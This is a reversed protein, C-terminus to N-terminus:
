LTPVYRMARAVQQNLAMVASTGEEQAVQQLTPLGTELSALVEARLACRGEAYWATDTPDGVTFLIGGDPAHWPRISRSTWLCVVGPNRNLPLGAADM